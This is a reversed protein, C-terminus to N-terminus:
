HKHQNHNPEQKENLQNSPKAELVFDTTYLIGDIQFQLWLRYYGSNVINMHLNLQNNMVMPHVHLFDFNAIGILVAHAKEGLYNDFNAANLEKGDKLISVPIHIEKGSLLDEAPHLIVSLNQDEFIYKESKFSAESKESGAVFLDFSDTIKDSGGPKYEAFLKYNGGYPLNTEILYEGNIDEVPHLHSFYDLDNSVIILHMKKEHITELEVSITKDIRLKPLFSLKLMGGQKLKELDNKFELYYEYDADNLSGSTKKIEMNRVEQNDNISESYTNYDLGSNNLLTSLVFIIQLFIMTM